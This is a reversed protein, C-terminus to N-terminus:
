EGGKPLLIAGEEASSTKRGLPGKEMGHFPTQKINYVYVGKKRPYFENRAPPLLISHNLPRGKDLATGSSLFSGVWGFGQVWIAVFYINMSTARMYTYLQM